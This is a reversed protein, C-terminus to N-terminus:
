SIREIKTVPVNSVVLMTTYLTEPQFQQNIFTTSVDVMQINGSPTRAMADGIDENNEIIGAYVFSFIPEGKNEYTIRYVGTYVLQSYTIAASRVSSFEAATKLATLEKEINQIEKEFNNDM